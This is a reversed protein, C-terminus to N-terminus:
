DAHKGEAFSKPAGFTLTDEKGDSLTVGLEQEGATRIKVGCVEGGVPYLRRQASKSDEVLVMFKGDTRQLMGRYVLSVVEKKPPPQTTQQPPPQLPTQGVNPPKGRLPPPQTTQQPPQTTQQPQAPQYAEFAGPRTFPDPLADNTTWPAQQELFALLGLPRTEKDKGSTAMPQAPIHVPRTLAWAWWGIVAILGIAAAALLARANARKLWTWANDM